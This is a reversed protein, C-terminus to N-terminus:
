DEKRLTLLYSVFQLLVVIVFKGCTTIPEFAKYISELENIITVLLITTGVFLTYYFVNIVKQGFSDWGEFDFTIARLLVGSLLAPLILAGYVVIFQITPDTLHLM